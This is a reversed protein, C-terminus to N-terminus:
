RRGFHTGGQHPGEQGGGGVQVDFWLNRATRSVAIGSTNRFRTALARALAEYPVVVVSKVGVVGPGWRSVTAGTGELEFVLEHM